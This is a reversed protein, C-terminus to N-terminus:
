GSIVIAVLINFRNLVQWRRQIIWCKIIGFDAFIKITPGGVHDDVAAEFFKFLSQIRKFLTKFFLFVHLPM